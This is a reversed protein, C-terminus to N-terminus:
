TGAPTINVWIILLYEPILVAQKWFTRLLQVHVHVKVHDVYFQFLRLKCDLSFYIDHLRRYISGGGGGGGNPFKGVATM